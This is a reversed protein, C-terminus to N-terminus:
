KKFIIRICIVTATGAIVVLITELTGPTKIIEWTKCPLSEPVLSKQLLPLFFNEFTSALKRDAVADLRKTTHFTFLIYSKLKECTQATEQPIKLALM